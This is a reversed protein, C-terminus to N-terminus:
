CKDSSRTNEPHRESGHSGNFGFPQSAAFLRTCVPLQSCHVSLHNIWFCVGLVGFPTTEWAHKTWSQLGPSTTEPDAREQGQKPATPAALAPLADACALLASGHAQRLESWRLVLFHFPLTLLLNRLCMPSHVPEEETQGLLGPGAQALHLQKLQNSLPHRDWVQVLHGFTHGPSSQASSRWMSFTVSGMTRCGTSSPLLSCHLLRLCLPSSAAWKAPHHNQESVANIKWPMELRGECFERNM